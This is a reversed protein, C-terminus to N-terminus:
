SVSVTNTGASTNEVIWKTGAPNSYIKLGGGIIQGSTSFGVNSLSANNLVVINAGETSTFQINQNVIGRLGFLYGNAIPPLTLTVAGTAGTNDFTNMNDSALIQYNATKSQFRKWPYWHRGPFDDDFKFYDGMQQRAMNDLGLLNISQVRGGAIYAFLRQQNVGQLDQMRLSTILVGVAVESGDTATPNYNTITGDATRPGGLVLGPRCEWTPSNGADIMNASYYGNAFTYLAPNGWMIGAEYTERAAGVGFVDGWIATSFM